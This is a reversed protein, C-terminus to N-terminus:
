PGGAVTPDEDGAAGPDTGTLAMVRDWEAEELPHVAVRPMRVFSTGSLAEDARIEALGLPRQLPAVAAIRVVAEGGDDAEDAATVVRATGVLAKDPSTHYILVLDGARCERLRRQAQANRIGDWRTEGDAVLQDWGYDVPDALFVWHRHGTPGTRGGRAKQAASM